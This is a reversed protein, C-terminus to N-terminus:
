ISHRSDSAHMAPSHTGSIPSHTYECLLFQVDGSLHKMPPHSPSVPAQVLMGSSQSSESQHVISEHESPLHM